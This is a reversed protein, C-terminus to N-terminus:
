LYHLLHVSFTFFVFPHVSLFYKLMYEHICFPPLIMVDFCSLVPSRAPSIIGNTTLPIATKDVAGHM